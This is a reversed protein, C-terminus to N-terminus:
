RQEADGPGGAEDETLDRCAVLRVRRREVAEKALPNTWAEVVGRHDVAVDHVVLRIAPSMGPMM